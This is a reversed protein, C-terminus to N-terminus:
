GNHGLFKNESDCCCQTLPSAFASQMYPPQMYPLYGMYGPMPVVYSQLASNIGQMQQQMAINFNAMDSQMKLEFLQERTAQTSQLMDFQPFLAISQCMQYSIDQNVPKQKKRSIWELTRDENLRLGDLGWWLIITQDIPEQKELIDLTAQEMRDFCAPVGFPAIELKPTDNGRNVRSAIFQPIIVILCSVGIISFWIIPTM